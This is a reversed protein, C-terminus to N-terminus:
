FRVQLFLEFTDFDQMNTDAGVEEDFDTQSYQGVLKINDEDFYYNFGGAIYSVENDEYDNLKDFEFNDYRAFFQLQGPGVNMPLMYGAKVYYGDRGGNLGYSNPDPDAGEAADDFDVNLYASSITFTGAETPYEFFVDFSYATYDKTDDTNEVDAYVAEGEYQYSAGFTLVKKKGLYTGKYGYDKEKDLLTLHIRGTYRLNSGPDPSGDGEDGTRGEM